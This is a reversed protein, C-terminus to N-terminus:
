AREDEVSVTRPEAIAERLCARARHLQTKVTGEVVGLRAAVDAVSLDLLYHLAVVERQVPSLRGLAEALRADGSPDHAEPWAPRTRSALRDLARREAAARRFGSRVRNLAAVTIWGSLDDVDRRRGWLDLVADQVADEARQRDGCILTLARVVREHDSEVWARIASDDM